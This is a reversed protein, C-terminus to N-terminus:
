NIMLTIVYIIGILIAVVTLAKTLIKFNSAFSTMIGVVDTAFPIIDLLSRGNIPKKLEPDKNPENQGKGAKRRTAEQKTLIKMEVEISGGSEYANSVAPSPDLDVWEKEIIIEQKTNLIKNFYKKMDITVSGLVDDKSLTHDNYIYMNLNTKNSPYLFDFILRYNFEGKGDKSNNHTDTKEEVEKEGNFMSVKVQINVSGNVLPVNETNWIVIRLEYQEVNHQELSTVPFLSNKSRPIVELCMRVAGKALNDKKPNYLVRSEIPIQKFAINNTLKDKYLPHFIRKELDIETYGILKESRLMDNLIGTQNILNNKNSILEVIEWFEITIKNFDPWVIDISFYTRNINADNLNFPKNDKYEKDDNWRKIWIFGEKSSLNNLKLSIANYIYVRCSFLFNNNSINLINNVNELYKSFVDKLHKSAKNYKSELRSIEANKKKSKDKTKYSSNDSSKKINTNNKYNELENLYIRPDQAIAIVFRFLGECEGKSNHLKITVFPLQSEPLTKEYEHEIEPKVFSSELENNNYIDLNYEDDVYNNFQNSNVNNTNNPMSSNLKTSYNKPISSNKKDINNLKVINFNIENGIENNINNIFYNFKEKLKNYLTNIYADKNNIYKNDPLEYLLNQEEYLNQFNNYNKIFIKNDLEELNNNFKEIKNTSIEENDIETYDKNIKLSKELEKNLDVVEIYKDTNEKNKFILEINKNFKFDTSLSLRIYSNKHIENDYDFRVNYMNQLNNLNSYQNASFGIKSCNSSFIKNDENKNNISKDNHILEIKGEYLKNYEKLDRVGISFLYLRYISEPPLLKKDKLYIDERGKKVLKVIFFTALIKADLINNNIDYLNYWKAYKYLEDDITNQNNFKKINSVNIYDQGIISKRNHDYLSLKIKECLSLNEPLTTSLKLVSNFVPNVSNEVERTCKEKGNFSLKVMCLPFKGDSSYLNTAMCIFGILKYNKFTTLSQLQPRHIKTENDNVEYNNNEKIFLSTLDRGYSLDSRLINISCLLLGLYNEIVDENIKTKVKRISEWIIKVNNERKLIDQAIIRKYGIYICDNNFTSKKYLLLFIDPIQSIDEPLKASIVKFRKNVWTFKKNYTNYFSGYVKSNNNFNILENDDEIFNLMRYRGVQLEVFIEEEESIANSSLEYIDFWILYNKEFPFDMEPVQRNIIKIPALEPQTLKFELLIRGLYYFKEYEKWLNMKYNFKTLFSSSDREPGYINYWRGEIFNNKVLGEFDILIRGIALNSNHLLEIIIFSRLASKEIPISHYVRFSPDISNRISITEINENDVILRISMNLECDKGIDFNNIELFSQLNNILEAKFIVVDLLLKNGETNISRKVVNNILKNKLNKKDINEENDSSLISNDNSNLDQLPTYVISDNESYVQLTYKINGFYKNDKEIYQITNNVIHNPQSYAYWLSAYHCGILVDSKYFPKKHYISILIRSQRLEVLPIVIEKQCIFYFDPNQNDYYVESTYFTNDINVYAYSSPTEKSGEIILNSCNHIILKISIKKPINDKINPYKLKNKNIKM